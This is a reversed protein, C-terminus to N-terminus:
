REAVEEYNYDKYKQGIDSLKNTKVVDDLITKHPSIELMENGFLQNSYFLVFCEKKSLKYVDQSNKRKDGNENNESTHRYIRYQPVTRDVEKRLEEIEKKTKYKLVDPLKKRKVIKGPVETQNTHYKAAKGRDAVYFADISKGQIECIYNIDEDKGNENSVSMQMEYCNHTARYGDYNEKQKLRNPINELNLAKVNDFKTLNKIIYDAMNHNCENNEKDLRDITRDIIVQMKETDESINKMTENMDKEAMSLAESIKSLHEIIEYENFGADKLEKIKKDNIKKAEIKEKKKGKLEEMRREYEKMQAKHMKLFAKTDNRIQILETIHSDFSLDGTHVEDPIHEIIISLAIIDYIKIEDIKKKDVLGALDNEVKDSLSKETKIRSILRFKVGPFREEIDKGIQIMLIDLIEENQTLTEYLNRIEERKDNKAKEVIAIQDKTKILNVKRM